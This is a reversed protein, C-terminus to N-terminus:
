YQIEANYRWGYKYLWSTNQSPSFFSVFCVLMKMPDFYSDTYGSSSPMKYSSIFIGGLAPHSLFINSTVIFWELSFFYYTNVSHFFLSRALSLTVKLICPCLWCQSAPSPSCFAILKTNETCAFSIKKITSVQTVM